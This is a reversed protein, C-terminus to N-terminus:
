ATGWLLALLVAGEAIQNGAGLLDGSQGGMRRMLYCGWLVTALVGACAAWPARQMGLWWALVTALLALAASLWPVWGPIAATIEKALGAGLPPLRTLLAASWRGWAMALLMGPVAAAGLAVLCAVRLSLVVWLAMAGYAGIRSDKMIELVRERTWGGGLGDTADTAGDEHFGGTLLLGIAVALVAAVAVPLGHALALFLGGIAAGIAAGVLPYWGVASPLDALTTAPGPCPLRTLFRIAAILTRVAEGADASRVRV